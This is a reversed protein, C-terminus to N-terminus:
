ETLYTKNKNKQNILNSIFDIIRKLNIHLKLDEWLSLKRKDEMKLLVLDLDKKLCRDSSLQKHDCGKDKNQNM